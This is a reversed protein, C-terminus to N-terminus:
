GIDRCRSELDEIRKHGKLGPNYPILLGNNGPVTNLTGDRLPVTIKGKCRSETDRSEPEILLEGATNACFM